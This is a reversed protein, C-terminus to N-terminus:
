VAPMTDYHLRDLMRDLVGNYYGPPNRIGRAKFTVLVARIGINLLLTDDYSNRIYRTHALWIGYIKNRLKQDDILQKFRAYTNDNSLLSHKHIIPEAQMNENSDNCSTAEVTQVSTEDQSTVPLVRIVNVSRKRSHGYSGWKKLTPIVDIIGYEKLARVARLVTSKSKGISQAITEYRNFSVGLVRLSSRGLCLLVDIVSTPVEDARLKVIHRYIDDDMESQKKFTAYKQLEKLNITLYITDNM